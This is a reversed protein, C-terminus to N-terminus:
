RQELGQLEAYLQRYSEFRPQRVRAEALAVRVACEPEHLHTCDGFHCQGLLPRLEPFCRDLDHAAIGGPGADSFGPTDAVQGGAGLDIMRSSVTTHRGARSRRGVPGTRLSLGPETANLLASKGVGSPGVLASLGAEIMARFAEIGEGTAASTVTVAYGAAGYLGALEAAVARGGPLDVKNLVVRCTMGGAEGMVLMRDMVGTSPPPDAVSAVVILRDLNAAVVKAFRSGSPRRWLATRRPLVKTIVVGGDPGGGQGALGGKVAGGGNGGGRDMASGAIGVLVEDGIVVRDGRRRRKLRGRLSAELVGDPTRVWYAGGITEVVQGRLPGATM